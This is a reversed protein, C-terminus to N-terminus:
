TPPRPHSGRRRRRHQRLLGYHDPHQRAADKMTGPREIERRCLLFQAEQKGLTFSEPERSIMRPGTTVGLAVIPGRVDRRRVRLSESPRASHTLVVMVM